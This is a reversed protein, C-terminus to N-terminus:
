RNFKNLYSYQYNQFQEAPSLVRHYLIIEGIEGTLLVAPNEGMAGILFPIGDVSPPIGATANSGQFAGNSYCSYIGDGLSYSVNVWNSAATEVNSLATYITGTETDRASCCITSESAYLNINYGANSLAQKAFIGNTPAGFNAQTRKVWASITYSGGMSSISSVAYHTAGTFVVGNGANNKLATGTILSANWPTGFLGRNAWVGSTEDLSSADYYLLCGEMAIEGALVPSPPAPRFTHNPPLNEQLGWKWALYGELRLRDSNALPGTFTLLEGIAAGGGSDSGSGLIYETPPGFSPAGAGGKLIQGDVGLYAINSSQISTAFFPAGPTLAASVLTTGNRASILAGGQQAIAASSSSSVLDLFPFAGAARSRGSLFSTTTGEAVASGIGKFYAEDEFIVMNSQLTPTGGRQTANGGHGSKDLLSLVTSPTQLVVAAPDAADLWLSLSSVQSPLFEVPPMTIVTSVNPPSYGVDSIAQVMFQYTTNTSLPTVATTFVTADGTVEQKPVAPDSLCDVTVLSWRPAAEQPATLLDWNLVVTSANLTSAHVYSPGSPPLGTQVTRFVAPASTAYANTATLSFTYDIGNVFGKVAHSYVNASIDKEYNIAPCALTYKLIPSGGDSTPASWYFNIESFTAWPRLVINPPTPAQYEQEQEKEQEYM